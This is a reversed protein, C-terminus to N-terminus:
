EIDDWRGSYPYEKATGALGRRVPNELVYQVIKILDENKRVVHDYFGRQWLPMGHEKKHWFGTQSKFTQLFRSVPINSEAPNLLVHLHDPMLCYAYIRYDHKDKSEKLYAITREALERDSFLARGDKVCITIFYARATSYDFHSLRLSNKREPKEM